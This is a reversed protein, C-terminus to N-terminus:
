NSVSDKSDTFNNRAQRVPIVSTHFYIDLPEMSLFMVYIRFDAKKNDFLPPDEVYKMLIRYPTMCKGFENNDEIIADKFEQVSSVIQIGNGMHPHVLKQSGHQVNLITGNVLLLKVAPKSVWLNAGLDISPQKKTWELPYDLIHTQRDDIKRLESSPANGNYIDQIWLNYQDLANTDDNDSDDECPVHVFYSRPVYKSLEKQEKLSATQVFASLLAKEAILNQDFPEDFFIIDRSAIDWYEKPIKDVIIKVNLYSVFLLNGLPSDTRAIASLFCTHSDPAGAVLKCWIMLHLPLYNIDPRTLLAGYDDNVSFLELSDFLETLILTFTEMSNCAYTNSGIPYKVPFMENYEEQTLSTAALQSQDKIKPFLVQRNMGKPQNKAVFILYNLTEDPPEEWPFHTPEYNKRNNIYESFLYPFTFSFGSDPNVGEIIPKEGRPSGSVPRDVFEFFDKRAKIMEMMRQYDMMSNRPNQNLQQPLQPSQQRQQKQKMIWDRYENELDINRERNLSNKIKNEGNNSVFKSNKAKTNKGISTSTDTIFVFLSLSVFLVILLLIVRKRQMQCASLM